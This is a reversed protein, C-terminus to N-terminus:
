FNEATRINHHIQKPSLHWKFGLMFLGKELRGVAFYSIVLWVTGLILACIRSSIGFVVRYSFM